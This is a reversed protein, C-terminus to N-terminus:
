EPDHRMIEMMQQDAFRAAAAARTLRPLPDLRALV